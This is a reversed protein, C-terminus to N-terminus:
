GLIGVTGTLPVNQQRAIRCADLDDSALLGGRCVAVALCSREGAGLRTSFSTTLSTEEESLTVVALDVWADAPVSGSVAGARYEDLMAPTTCATKPWLRKVLDARDVVALNTLVTNDLVVPPDIQEAVQGM